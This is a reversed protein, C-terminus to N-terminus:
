SAASSTEKRAKQWHTVQCSKSCFRQEAGGRRKPDPAFWIMCHGCEILGDAYALVQESKRM